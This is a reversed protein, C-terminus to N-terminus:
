STVDELKKPIRDHESSRQDVLVTVAPRGSERGARNRAGRARVLAEPSREDISAAIGL